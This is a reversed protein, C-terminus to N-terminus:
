YQGMFGDLLPPKINKLYVLQDEYTVFIDILNESILFCSDFHVWPRIGL